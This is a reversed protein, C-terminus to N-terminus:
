APRVGDVEIPLHIPGRLIPSPRYEPPDQVLRPNELRRALTRLAIQVELRAM